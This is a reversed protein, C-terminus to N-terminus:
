KPIFLLLAITWAFFLSQHVSLATCVVKLEYAKRAVFVVDKMRILPDDDSEDLSIESEIVSYDSDELMNLAQEKTFFNGAM